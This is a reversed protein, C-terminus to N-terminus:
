KKARTKIVKKPEELATVDEIVEEPAEETEVLHDLSLSAKHISAIKSRHLIGIKQDALNSDLQPQDINGDIDHPVFIDKVVSFGNNDYFEVKITGYKNNCSIVKHLLSM